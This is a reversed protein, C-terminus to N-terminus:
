LANNICIFHRQSMCRFFGLLMPRAQGPETMARGPLTDKSSTKKSSYVPHHYLIGLFDLTNCFIHM